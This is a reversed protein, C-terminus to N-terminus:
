VRQILCLLRPNSNTSLLVLREKLPSIVVFAVLNHERGVSVVMAFHTFRMQFTHVVLRLNGGCSVQVLVAQM